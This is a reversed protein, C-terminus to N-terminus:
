GKNMSTIWWVNGYPDQVGGSRGYSQDAVEMLTTAGVEM